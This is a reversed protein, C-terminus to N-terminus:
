AGFGRFFAVLIQEGVAITVEAHSIYYTDVNSVRFRLTDGGVLDDAIFELPWEYEAEDMGAFATPGITLALGVSNNVTTFAWGGVAVWLGNAYM